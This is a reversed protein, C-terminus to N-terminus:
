CELKPYYHMSRNTHMLHIFIEHVIYILYFQYNSSRNENSYEQKCTARFTRLSRCFNSATNADM